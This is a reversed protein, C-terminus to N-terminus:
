NLRPWCLLWCMHLFLLMNSIALNLALILHRLVLHARENARQADSTFVSTTRIEFMSYFSRCSPWPSGSGLQRTRCISNAYWCLCLPCLKRLDAMNRWWLMKFQCSYDFWTLFQNDFRDDFFSLYMMQWTAGRWSTAYYHKCWCWCRNDVAVDFIQAFTWLFTFYYHGKEKIKRISNVFLCSVASLQLVKGVDTALRWCHATFSILEGWICRILCVPIRGIQCVLRVSVQGIRYVFLLPAPQGNWINMRIILTVGGSWTELELSLFLCYLITRVTIQHSYDSLFLTSGTSLLLLLVLLRFSWKGGKLVVEWPNFFYGRIPSAAV